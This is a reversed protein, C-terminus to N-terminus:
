KRCHADLYNNYANKSANYADVRNNFVQLDTNYSSKKANYADVKANYSDIIDQPLDGNVGMGKIESMLSDLEDSRSNLATRDNEISQSESESPKLLNAQNIDYDSCHYLGDHVFTDTSSPSSYSTTSASPNYSTSYSNNPPTYSSQSYRNNNYKGFLLAVIILWM